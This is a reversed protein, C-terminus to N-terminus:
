RRIWNFIHKVFAALTPGCHARVDDINMWRIDGVEIIQEHSAFNVKPVIDTTARAVYYTNTYRTDADIHSYTRTVQPYIQYSSKPVGTEEHFERVACHIDPERGNRRRGKPIEWVRDGHRASTILRRLRVGGDTVFASEYKNKAVFYSVTNHSGNLYVRYWIQLFNLSLMDHKEDVTLGSFLEILESNNSPTYRGHALTVFAYTCRNRILLIEPRGQNIRCCAVGYSQRERMRPPPQTTPLTTPPVTTTRARMKTATTYMWIHNRIQGIACSM